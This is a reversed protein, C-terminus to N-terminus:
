HAIIKNFGVFFYVENIKLKRILFNPPKNIFLCSLTQM